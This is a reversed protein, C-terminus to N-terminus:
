QTAIQAWKTDPNSNLKPPMISPGTKMLSVNICSQLRACRRPTQSQKWCWIICSLDSWHHFLWPVEEILFFINKKRSYFTAHKRWTLHCLYDGRWKFDNRQSHEHLAVSTISWSYKFYYNVLNATKYRSEWISICWVPLLPFFSYLSCKNAQCLSFISKFYSNQVIM